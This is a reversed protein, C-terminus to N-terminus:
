GSGYLTSLDALRLVQESDVHLMSLIRMAIFLQLEGAIAGPRPVLKIAAFFDSFNQARVSM